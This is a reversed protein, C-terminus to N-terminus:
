SAVALKAQVFQNELNTLHKYTTLDGPLKMTTRTTSYSLILPLTNAYFLEKKQPSPVLGDLLAFDRIEDKSYGCATINKLTKATAIKNLAAIRSEKLELDKEPCYLLDEQKILNKQADIVRKLQDIERELKGRKELTMALLITSTGASALGIGFPVLLFVPPFFIAGVVAAGITAFFALAFASVTLVAKLTIGKMEKQLKILQTKAESAKKQAPESDKRLLDLAKKNTTESGAPLDKILSGIVDPGSSLSAATASVSTSM